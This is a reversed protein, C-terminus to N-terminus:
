LREAEKPSATRSRDSHTNLMTPSRVEWECRREEWRASLDKPLRDLSSASPVLGGIEELLKAAEGPPLEAVMLVMLRAARPTWAGEVIGSRLELPCITQGGGRPRYLHRLVRMPGLQGFYTQECELAKRYEVGEVSVQESDVDLGQLDVALIEAGLALVLRAIEKEHEEFATAGGQPSKSRRDGVYQRLANFAPSNVFDQDHYKAM